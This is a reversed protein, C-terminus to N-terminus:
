GVLDGKLIGVMQRRRNSFSGRCGKKVKSQKVRGFWFINGWIWRWITVKQYKGDQWPILEVNFFQFCTWLVKQYNNSPCRPQIKEKGTRFLSCITLTHSAHSRCCRDKTNVLPSISPANVSLLKRQVMQMLPHEERLSNMHNRVGVTGLTIPRQPGALWWPLANKFQQFDTLNILHGM